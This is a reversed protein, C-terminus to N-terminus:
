NVNRKFYKVLFTGAVSPSLVLNSVTAL